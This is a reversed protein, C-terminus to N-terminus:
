FRWRPKFVFVGTPAIHADIGLIGVSNIRSEPLLLLSKVLLYVMIHDPKVGFKVLRSLGAFVRAEDARNDWATYIRKSTM